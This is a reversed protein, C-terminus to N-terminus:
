GSTTRGRYGRGALGGDLLLLHVALLAGVAQQGQDRVVVQFGEGDGGVGFDVGAEELLAFGDGVREFFAVAAVQVYDFSAVDGDGTSTRCARSAAIITPRTRAIGPPGPCRRTAAPRRALRPLCGGLNDWRGERRQLRLVVHAVLERPPGARNTMGLSAFCRALSRFRRRNGCAAWIRRQREPHCCHRGVGGCFTTACWHAQMKISKSTGTTSHYVTGQSDEDAFVGPATMGDRYFSLALTLCM